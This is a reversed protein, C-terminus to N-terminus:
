LCTFAAIPAACCFVHIDRPCVTTGSRALCAGVASQKPPPVPRSFRSLQFKVYPARTTVRIVRTYLAVSAVVATAGVAALAIRSSM